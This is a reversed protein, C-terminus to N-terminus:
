IFVFVTTYQFIFISIKSCVKRNTAAVRCGRNILITCTNHCGNAAAITLATEGTLTCQGDIDVSSTDLLYEVIQFANM